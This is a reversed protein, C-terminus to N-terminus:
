NQLMFMKIDWNFKRYLYVIKRVCYFSIFTKECTSSDCM